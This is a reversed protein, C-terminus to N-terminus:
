NFYSKQRWRNTKVNQKQIKRFMKKDQSGIKNKLADKETSLEVIDDGMLTFAKKIDHMMSVLQEGKKAQTSLSQSNFERLDQVTTKEILKDNSIFQMSIYSNANWKPSKIKFFKM